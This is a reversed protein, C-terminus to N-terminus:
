SGSNMSLRQREPSSMHPRTEGCGARSSPFVRCMRGVRMAGMVKKRRSSAGPEHRRGRGACGIEGVGGAVHKGGEFLESGAEEGVDDAGDAAERAFDLVSEPFQDGGSEDGGVAEFIEAGEDIGFPTATFATFAEGTGAVGGSTPGDKTVDGSSEGEGFARLGDGALQEQAPADDKAIQEGASGDSGGPAVQEGDQAAHFRPSGDAAAAEDRAEGAFM